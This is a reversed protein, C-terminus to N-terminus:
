NASFPNEPKEQEEKAAKGAAYIREAMHQWDIDEVSKRLIDFVMHMRSAVEEAMTHLEVIDIPKNESEYDDKQNKIELLLLACQACSDQLMSTFSESIFDHIAGIASEDFKDPDLASFKEALPSAMIKAYLGGATKETQEALDTLFETVANVKDM